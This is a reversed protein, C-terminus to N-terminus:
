RKKSVKVSITQWSNFTVNEFAKAFKIHQLDQYITLSFFSCNKFHWNEFALYWIITKKLINLFFSKSIKTAEHNAPIISSVIKYTYIILQVRFPRPHTLSLKISKLRTENWLDEDYYALPFQPQLTKHNLFISSVTLQVDTINMRGITWTFTKNYRYM